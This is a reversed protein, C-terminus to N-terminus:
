ALGYEELCDNVSTQWMTMYEALLEEQTPQRLVYEMPVKITNGIEDVFLHNKGSFPAVYAYIGKTYAEKKFIVLTGKEM